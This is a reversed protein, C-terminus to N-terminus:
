SQGRAAGGERVTRRGKPLENKLLDTRRRVRLARSGPPGRAATRIAFPGGLSLVGSVIGVARGSTPCGVCM